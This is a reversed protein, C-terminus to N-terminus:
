VIFDLTQSARWSLLSAEAFERQLKIIYLARQHPRPTVKPNSDADHRHHIAMIDVNPATEGLVESDIGAM